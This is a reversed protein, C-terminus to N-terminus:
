PLPYVALMWGWGARRLLRDCAAGEQYARDLLTEAQRHSITSLVGYSRLASAFGAKWAEPRRTGVRRLYCLEAAYAEAELELRRTPSSLYALMLSLTGAERYQQKHIEEHLIMRERAHFGEPENLVIVRQGVTVASACAALPVVHCTLVLLRLVVSASLPLSRRM